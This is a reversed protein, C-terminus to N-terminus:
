CERHISRGLAQAIRVQKKDVEDRRRLAEFMIGAGLM